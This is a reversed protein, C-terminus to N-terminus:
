ETVVVLKSAGYMNCYHRKYQLINDVEEQTLDTAKSKNNTFQFCSDGVKQWYSAYREDNEDQHYMGLIKIFM